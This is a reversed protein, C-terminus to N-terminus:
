FNEFQLFFILFSSFTLIFCSSRHGDCWPKTEDRHCFTMNSMRTSHQTHKATVFKEYSICRISEGCLISSPNLCFHESACVQQRSDGLPQYSPLETVPLHFSCSLTKSLKRIFYFHSNKVPFIQCLNFNKEAVRVM